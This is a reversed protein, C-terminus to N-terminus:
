GKTSHPICIVILTGGANPTGIEFSGKLLDLHNRMTTLGIGDGMEGDKIGKGNDQVKISVQDKSFLVELSAESAEAHKIINTMLEQIIRYIFLELEKGLGVPPEQFSCRIKLAGEFQQCIDQVAVKLGFSQLISPSLEHSIRRTEKIAATLLAGTNLRAKRIHDADDTKMTMQELSLKVGYLLQGLGNHLSDSIRKREEEQTRLTTKLIDENHSALMKKYHSQLAAKEQQLQVQRTVDIDIGTVSIPTGNPDKVVTGKIKIHKISNRVSLSITKEFDSDGTRISKAIKKAAALSKPTAYEIYLDPNVKEGDRIDFMNYMGQTWTFKDTTLDYAWSGALAFEETQKLITHDRIREVDTNTAILADGLRVFMASFWRNFGPERYYYQLQEPLGTELVRLMIDFIGIDIIGPYEKAYWISTLDSRGTQREVEKNALVISFDIVKGSNDREPHFVSIGIQLTDFISQLLDKREKLEQLQHLLQSSPELADEPQM